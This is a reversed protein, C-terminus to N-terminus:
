NFVLTIEREKSIIVAHLTMAINHSAVNPQKMTMKERSKDPSNAGGEM